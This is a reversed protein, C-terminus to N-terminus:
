IVARTSPMQGELPESCLRGVRFKNAPENMNLDLKIDSAGLPKVKAIRGAATIQRRFPGRHM